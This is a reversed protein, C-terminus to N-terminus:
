VEKFTLAPLHPTTPGPQSYVHVPRWDQRLGSCLSGSIIGRPGVAAGISVRVATAARRSVIMGLHSPPSIVALVPLRTYGASELLRHADTAEKSRGRSPHLDQRPQAPAAPDVYTSPESGAFIVIRCCSTSEAGTRRCTSLYRAVLRVLRDTIGGVNM